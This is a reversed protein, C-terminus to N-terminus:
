EGVPGNQVRLLSLVQWNHQQGSFDLECLQRTDATEADNRFSSFFYDAGRVPRRPAAPFESTPRRKQRLRRIRGPTWDLFTM